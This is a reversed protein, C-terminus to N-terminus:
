TPTTWEPGPKPPASVGCLVRWSSQIALQVRAADSQEHRRTRQALAQTRAHGLKAHLLWLRHNVEEAYPREEVGGAGKEPATQQVVLDVLAGSNHEALPGGRVTKRLKRPGSDHEQGRAHLAAAARRRKASVRKGLSERLSQKLSERLRTRARPTPRLLPPARSCHPACDAAVAAADVSAAEGLGDRDGATAQAAPQSASAAAAAM